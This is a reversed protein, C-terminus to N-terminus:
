VVIEAEGAGEGSARKCKCEKMILVVRWEEKLRLSSVRGWGRRLVPQRDDERTVTGKTTVGAAICEGNLRTDSMAHGDGVAQVRRCGPSFSTMRRDVESGRANVSPVLGRLPIMACSFCGSRDISALTPLSLCLYSGSYEGVLAACGHDVLGM